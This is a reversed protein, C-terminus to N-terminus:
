RIFIKFLLQHIKNGFPPFLLSGLSIKGRSLVSKGHSFTKFGESGHYQGMGSAGIGGFPLDDIAVHFAADNICVGGAHTNLLVQQQFSKDFSCIYLALPRPKSNIYAIAENINNYGIIPLLPGFIEQQMITMDDNVNTLLTLPMKRSASGNSDKSLPMITAGQAKADALLSDLRAKQADNIICSCDDNEEINPYMSQYATQFAQTLEEVKSQPCFIYDPAVCTQGANLTKGLILRSVATKIDIDNDIITPSKGGLELTVPVLNEAAAKMVLRGVGTSGTFFLHDFTLGSFAAAMDSEGCIIAVKNRPFIDAILKALLTNTNPTYESMKIMATNGAALATTLPGLTLFVPYNWPAIIGIVGKPQFVVEGKAPQFLIGIHKKEPKMWKKLKKIAYNIGMVTTLIDGIRSDAASRHGFDQSMADIFAEQNDIIIAKLKVLDSIREQYSPYTNSAFYEKQQLFTDTLATKTTIEKM